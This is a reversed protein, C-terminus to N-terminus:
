KKKMKYWGIILLIISILILVPEVLLIWIMGYDDEQTAVFLFFLLASLIIGGIGSKLYINKLTNM